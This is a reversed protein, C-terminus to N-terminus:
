NFDLYPTLKILDDSSFEDLVNLQEINKLKGLKRRYEYIAKARQFSGIYPHSKLYDVGANNIKIKRILTGDATLSHKIKEFNEDRMGYVERLQEVSYYGGLVNRYGVIRKAYTKGIGRVKVLAATDAVNIELAVALEEKVTKEESQKETTKQHLEKTQELKAIQIYPKLEEFKNETIGYVKGFDEPSRFKGGKARYKLINKAIYPKLGLRVFSVSDASNPDFAFLQYVQETKKKKTYNRNEFPVFEKKRFKEKEKLNAIFARAESLFKEDNKSNEPPAVFCPMLLTASFVLLILFLLIIIGIRQSKNFYFFDKWM